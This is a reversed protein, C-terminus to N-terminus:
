VAGTGSRGNASYWASITVADGSGAEGVDGSSGVVAILVPQREAQARAHEVPKVSSAPTSM